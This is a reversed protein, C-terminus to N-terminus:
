TCETYASSSICSVARQRRTPTLTLTLTLTLCSTLTHRSPRTVADSRLLRCVTGHRTHARSEWDYRTACMANGWHSGPGAPQDFCALYAIPSSSIWHLPHGHPQPSHSPQLRSPPVLEVPCSLHDDKTAHSDSPPLTSSKQFSEISAPHLGRM